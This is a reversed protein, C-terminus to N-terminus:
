MFWWKLQVPCVVAMEEVGAQKLSEELLAHWIDLLERSIYVMEHVM